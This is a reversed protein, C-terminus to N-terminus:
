IHILSLNYPDIIIRPLKSSDLLGEELDFNWSRNQKALLQRQLKNALKTILNQFSTLQQDLNKRLKMVEEQNELNEAKSIEDFESTFVKYDNNNISNNIKQIMNESNKNESNADVM